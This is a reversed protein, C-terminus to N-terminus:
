AKGLELLTIENVSGLRMPPGWTATGPSVYLRVGNEEYLGKFYKLLLRGLINVPFVQGGHYHGALIVSGQPLPMMQPVHTLVIVPESFEYSLARTGIVGQEPAYDLGLISYGEMQVIEDRLLRVDTGSLVVQILEVGEYYEHNGTVMFVRANIDRLPEFVREGPVPAGSVIDGTIFVVDPKLANVMTVVKRLYGKGHVIGLHLDSLLVAKFEKTFALRVYRVSLRQANVMSIVVLGLTFATIALGSHIHPMEIFLNLIEFLILGSLASLEMAYVSTVVVFLAKYINSPSTRAVFGVVLLLTLTLAYAISALWHGLGFLNTVRDFVYFNVLTVIVFATSITGAMRKPFRDM